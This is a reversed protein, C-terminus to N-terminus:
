LVAAESFFDATISVLESKNSQKNKIVHLYTGVYPECVRAKADLPAVILLQLGFRDFLDLAYEAHADDSRSFMEDVMVFAFKDSPPGDPDIDYQYAIAAVLVLFALKGKEGGSQGTGGDYYSRQEGTDKVIERAGFNFWNRVDIVKERWRSNGDDRLKAVFKEIRVFTSENVEPSGDLTGSLCGALERRFDQIERDQVDSPELRMYTGIKWDLLKLAANLQEIKDKIEEREDELSGHLLGVENLVNENLRRKFREEHKPLDDISIKEFLARFSSLSEINPDLDAQEDPFRKLFRSMGSILERGLPALKEQIKEVSERQSQMCASPLLGINALSIPEALGSAIAEYQSQWKEYDESAKALALSRQSAELMRRGDRLERDKETRQEIAKDRDHQYGDVEACRQAVQKKLERISDDSEELKQRELKLQNAEFEHRYSDISDFDEIHLAQDLAEIAATASDIEQNLRHSREELQMLNSQSARIAEALAVQKQRNDWGLVYHRRVDHIQRDDKEHRHSGSKIHRNRTMAAADIRQFEEISDCAVYDFRHQIESKVWPSLPHTPFELKSLLTERKDTENSRLSSTDRNQRSVKLYVLRQGQGRGDVLRTREIYSSVRAYYDTPVLLSRAFSHLVQEITSEWDRETVQVAMLEAAFPLDSPALKLERCMCDRMAIFTEPLNGKRKELAELEARDEALQRAMAGVEFQVQDNLKRKATREEALTARRAYGEKRVKAFQDPSTIRVQVGALALQSELRTRFQSKFRALTESQEILGPLQKLREGGANEIDIELRAIESRLKSQTIELRDIEANLNLIQQSWQDCIPALLKVIQEDFFPKMSELQLKALHVEANRVEFRDGLEVVPRLLEDQQRVRVLMRHAESLENFHNLLRGVRENWPKRELMHQRIFDDLRQVDKVAVTQNFIDMAKPKFNTKRQIWSLYEKYSSTTRFGRDKLSRAISSGLGLEGLDGVISREDDSYAYVKEVANEHNLYLIQAITFASNLHENSFTALLATYHGSGSRLYQIQPRGSEGVTRDYAGRIYTKEDRENKTAGAAVNYNRTQPRVLLTLLADVITSKGSGNEGVLLTTQGRPQVSYVSGDFTGWNYIELKALRYGALAPRDRDDFTNAPKRIM